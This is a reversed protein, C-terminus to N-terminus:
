FIRPIGGRPCCGWGLLNRGVAAYDKCSLASAHERLHLFFVDELPPPCDVGLSLDESSRNERMVVRFV